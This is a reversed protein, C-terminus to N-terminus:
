RGELFIARLHNAAECAYAATPLFSRMSNVTMVGEVRSCNIRPLVDEDNVSALIHLVRVTCKRGAKDEIHVETDPFLKERNRRWSNDITNMSSMEGVFWDKCQIVALVYENHIVSKFFGYLDGGENYIPAPVLIVGNSSKEELLTVLKALEKPTVAGSAPFKEDTKVYQVDRGGCLSVSLDSGCHNASCWQSPSFRTNSRAFLLVSAAVVEEWDKGKQAQERNLHFGKVADRLQLLALGCPKLHLELYRLSDLVPLPILAHMIEQDKAELLQCHGEIIGRMSSAHGEATSKTTPMLFACASDIALSEVAEVVAKRLTTEDPYREKDVLNNFSEPYPVVAVIATSIRIRRGAEGLWRRLEAVFLNGANRSDCKTKFDFGQLLAYLRELRRPHGGAKWLWGSVESYLDLDEKQYPLNRRMGKNFFPQLAIPLLHVAVQDLGASPLLPPLSQLLLQRNSGTSFTVLDV